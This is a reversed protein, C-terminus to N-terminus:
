RYQCNSSTDCKTESGCSGTDDKEAFRYRSYVFRVRNLLNPAFRLSRDIDESCNRDPFIKWTYIGV